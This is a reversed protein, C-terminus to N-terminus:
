HSRVGSMRKSQAVASPSTGPIRDGIAIYNEITIALKAPFHGIQEFGTANLGYAYTWSTRPLISNGFAPDCAASSLQQILHNHEVGTMQTTQDPIVARIVMRVPDVIGKLLVRWCPARSRQLGASGGSNHGERWEAAQMM